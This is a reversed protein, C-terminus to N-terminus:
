LSVTVISNLNLYHLNYKCTRIGLANYISGQDLALFTIM